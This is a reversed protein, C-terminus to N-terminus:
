DHPPEKQCLASDYAEVKKLAGEIDALASRIETPTRHREEWKAILSARHKVADSWMNRLNVIEQRSLQFESM